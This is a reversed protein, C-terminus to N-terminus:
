SIDFVQKQSALWSTMWDQYEKKLWPKKNAHKTQNPNLGRKFAQVRLYQVNQKM